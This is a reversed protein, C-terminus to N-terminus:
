ITSAIPAPMMNKSAKMTRLFSGCAPPCTTTSYSLGHDSYNGDLAFISAPACFDGALQGVAEAPLQPVVQQGVFDGTQHVAFARRHLLVFFSFVRKIVPQELSEHSTAELTTQIGM